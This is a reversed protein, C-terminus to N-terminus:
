RAWLRAEDWLVESFKPRLVKISPSSAFYRRRDKHWKIAVGVMVSTVGTEVKTRLAIAIRVRGRPGRGNTIAVTYIGAMTTTAIPIHADMSMIGGPSM